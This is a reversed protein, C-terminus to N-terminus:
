SWGGLGYLGLAAQVLIAMFHAFLYLLSVRFFRREVAFNDAEAMTEDRRWIRWAGALFVAALVVRARLAAVAPQGEDLGDHLRLRGDATRRNEHAQHPRRPRPCNNRTPGTVRVWM